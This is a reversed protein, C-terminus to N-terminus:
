SNPTNVIFYIEADSQADIFSHWMGAFGLVFEVDPKTLQNLREVLIATENAVLHGLRCSRSLYGKTIAAIQQHDEATARFGPAQSPARKTAILVGSARLLSRLNEILIM